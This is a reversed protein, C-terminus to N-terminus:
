GARRHPMLAACISAPDALAEFQPRALLYGQILTIGLDTLVALEGETEIGEAITAIGLRDCLGKISGVIERRVPDADIGRVLAMDIKIIDPQVEALLSLGAFGAGFDDLATRFGRAKYRAVINKLHEVDRVLEGETFEFVINEIPFDHRDAAWLTAQICHDPNYVANPMFNISLSETMGLRAALEIAKVRCSQDFSYRNEATVQDLITGASAGDPGRLLAEHAFIAGTDTDYIPQFAMTFATRFASKGRTACATCRPSALDDSPM